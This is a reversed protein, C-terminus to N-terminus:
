SSEQMSGVAFRLKRFKKTLVLFCELEDTPLFSRDQSKRHSGETPASHISFGRPHKDNARGGPQKACNSPM